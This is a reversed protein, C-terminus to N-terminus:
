PVDGLGTGWAQGPIVDPSIYKPKASSATIFKRKCGTSLSDSPLRFARYLFVTWSVVRNIPLNTSDASCRMASTASSIPKVNLPASKFDNFESFFHLAFTSVMCSKAWGAPQLLRSSAIANKRLRKVSKLIQPGSSLRFTRPPKAASFRPASTTLM